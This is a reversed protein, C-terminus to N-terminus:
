VSPPQLRSSSSSRKGAAQRVIHSGCIKEFLHPSFEEAVGIYDDRLAWPDMGLAEIATEYERDVHAKLKTLASRLPTRWTQKWGQEGGIACGCDRAWRGVGHSCSWSSGEGYADRLMVEHRPPHHELFWGFNVPTIGLEPAVKKFFASLCMDGFPKHHGFTEGDTALIVAGHDNHNLADNIRAGLLNADTLLNGFSAERSVAADFFLADLYGAMRNGACDVPLIRYARGTDIGRHLSNWPAASGLQRIAEAQSPSLIVFRINEAICCRVTEMNIATEALWLGEPDRGFRERFHRKAWRIQTLQDRVSSLPMIIHNYVQAIANGHGGLTRCSVADAEIIRRATGGHHEEIWSFLTPGFNFSMSCYNNNIDTIRGRGDLLRSYANPRYCEDYVRENWDHYPAASSQREIRGTWPNERPPQYFHGHIIVYKSM